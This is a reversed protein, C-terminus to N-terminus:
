RECMSWPETINAKTSINRQVKSSFEGFLLCDAPSRSCCRMCIDPQGAFKIAASAATSSDASSSIVNVIAPSTNANANANANDNGSAKTKTKTKVNVDVSADDDNGICERERETNCEWM